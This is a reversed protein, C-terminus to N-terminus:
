LLAQGQQRRKFSLSCIGVAMNWFRTALRALLTSSIVAFLFPVLHQTVCQNYFFVEVFVPTQFMHFCPLEIPWHQTLHLNWSRHCCSAKASASSSCHPAYMSWAIADIIWHSLHQKNSPNDRNCTGFCVFLQRPVM